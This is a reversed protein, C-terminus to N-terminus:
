KFFDNAPICSKIMRNYKGLISFLYQIGWSSTNELGELSKRDLIEGVDDNKKAKGVKNKSLGKSSKAEKSKSKAKSASTKTIVIPKKVKPSRTASASRPKARSTSATQREKVATNQNRGTTSIRM